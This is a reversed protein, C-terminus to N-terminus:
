AFNGLAVEIKAREVAIRLEIEDLIEILRPDDTEARESALKVALSQLLQPPISGMLLAQRLRDLTQLRDQGYQIARRRKAGREDVEQLALFPAVNATSTTAGAEQAGGAGGDVAAFASAFSSSGTGPTSATRRLQAPTPKYGVDSIKM